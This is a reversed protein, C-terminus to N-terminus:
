LSRPGNRSHAVHMHLWHVLWCGAVSSPMLIDASRFQVNLVPRAVLPPVARGSVHGADGVASANAGVRSPGSAQQKM